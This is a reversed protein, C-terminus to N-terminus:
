PFSLYASREGGRSAPRRRRRVRRYGEGLAAAAAGSLGATFVMLLTPLVAAAALAALATATLGILGGAVGLGVFSTVRIRGPRLGRLHSQLTALAVLLVFGLATAPVTSWWLHTTTVPVSEVVVRDDVAISVDVIGATTWRLYGPDMAAHGAVVPGEAWGVPVGLLTARLTAVRGAGDLGDITVPRGFDVTPPNGGDGISVPPPAAVAPTSAAAAVSVALAAAIALVGAAMLPLLPGRTPEPAPQAAPAYGFRVLVDGVGILDPPSLRDLDPPPPRRTDAPRRRGDHYGDDRLDLVGVGPDPGPVLTSRRTGRDAGADDLVTAPARLGRRGRLRPTRERVAAHPAHVADDIVASATVRVGTETLWGGGWCATAAGALDVAFTAVDGHREDLRRSLGRMAVAALPSPVTPARESLQPPDGTIRAVLMAMPTTAEAFPLRGALMEYLMTACAYVDAAPGVEEGEAQEPAMYAPTGLIAGDATALTRNGGLVKAMGFDTVKVQGDATFLLNEPKVDRHLVGHHHAHDLGAAAALLLACATPPTFGQNVFRDWVTGGPLREMILALRGDRDVFDHVVVVHPHDLSAVTQAEQVFRRRMTDDAAVASPLEKIAVQRGLTRHRALYVVGMAGRGLEGLLEYEPLAARLDAM